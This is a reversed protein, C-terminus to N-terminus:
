AAVRRCRAPWRRRVGARGSRRPCWALASWPRLSSSRRRRTPHARAPRCSSRARRSVVFHRRCAHSRSFQGLAQGACTRLLGRRGTGGGRGFLPASPRHIAGLRGFGRDPCKLFRDTSKDDRPLCHAGATRAGPLEFGVPEVKRAALALKGACNDFAVGACRQFGAPTPPLVQAPKEGRRRSGRDAASASIPRM